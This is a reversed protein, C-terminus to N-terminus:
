ERGYAAEGEDEYCDQEHEDALRQISFEIQSKLVECAVERGVSCGREACWDVLKTVCASSEEVNSLGDALAVAFDLNFYDSFNGANIKTATTM